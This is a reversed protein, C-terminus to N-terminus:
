TNTPDAYFGCLGVRRAPLFPPECLNFTNEEAGRRSGHPNKKKDCM